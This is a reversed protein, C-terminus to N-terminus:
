ELAQVKVVSVPFCIQQQTYAQWIALFGLFVLQRIEIRFSMEANLSVSIYSRSGQSSCLTSFSVVAVNGLPLMKVCWEALYWEECFRYVGRVGEGTEKWGQNTGERLDLEMGKGDYLWRSKEERQSHQRGKQETFCLNEPFGGHELPPITFKYLFQIITRRMSPACHM